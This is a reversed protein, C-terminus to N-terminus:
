FLAVKLANQYGDHKSSRLGNKSAQPPYILHNKYIKIEISYENKKKHLFFCFAGALGQIGVM